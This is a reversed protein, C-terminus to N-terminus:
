SPDSLTYSRLPPPRVVYLLRDSLTYTPTPTDLATQCRAPLAAHTRAGRRTSNNGVHKQSSVLLNWLLRSALESPRLVLRTAWARGELLNPVAKPCTCSPAMSALWALWSSVAGAALNERPEQHRVEDGRGLDGHRLNWPRAM